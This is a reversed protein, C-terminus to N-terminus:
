KTVTHKRFGYTFGFEKRKRKPLVIRDGFYGAGGYLDIIHLVADSHGTLSITKNHVDCEKKLFVLLQYGASDIKTVKELHLVLSTYTTVYTILVKTTETITTVICEGILALHVERNNKKIEKVEMKYWLEGPM